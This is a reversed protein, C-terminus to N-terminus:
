DRASDDGMIDLTTWGLFFDAWEGFQCIFAVGFRGLHLLKPCSMVHDKDPGPGLILGLPGVRWSEPSNPDAFDVEDYGMRESGWVVLGTANHRMPFSGTRGGCLGHFTGDVRSYGLTFINFCSSYLSFGSEESVTVGIDFMDLADNRRRQMYSCGSCFIGALMAIGITLLVNQRATM